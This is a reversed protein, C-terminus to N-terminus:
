KRLGRTAGIESDGIELFEQALIVPPLLPPPDDDEKFRATMWDAPLGSFFALRAQSTAIAEVFTLTSM